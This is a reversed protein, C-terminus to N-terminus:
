DAASRAGSNYRGRRYLRDADEAPQPSWSVRSGMGGEGFERRNHHFGLWTPPEGNSPLVIQIQNPQATMLAMITTQPSTVEVQCPRSTRAPGRTKVVVM